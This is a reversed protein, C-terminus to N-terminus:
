RMQRKFSKRLQLAWDQHHSPTFVVGGPPSLRQSGRDGTRAGHGNRAAIVIRRHTVLMGPLGHNFKEALSGIGAYMRQKGTLLNALTVDDTHGYKMLTFILQTPANAYSRGISHTHTHSNRQNAGATRNPVSFLM